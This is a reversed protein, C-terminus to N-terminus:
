PVPHVVLVASGQLDGARLRDLATIAEELPFTEVAARV